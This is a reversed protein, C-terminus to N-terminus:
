RPTFPISNTKLQDNQLGQVGPQRSNQVVASRLKIREPVGENDGSKLVVFGVKAEDVKLANSECLRQEGSAHPDVEAERDHPGGHLLLPSQEVVLLRAGGQELADPEGVQPIAPGPGLEM